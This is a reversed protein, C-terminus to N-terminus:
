CFDDISKFDRDRWQLHLSFNDLHEVIKRLKCRLKCRLKLCPLLLVLVVAIVQQIKALNGGGVRYFPHLHTFYTSKRSASAKNSCIDYFLAIWTNM